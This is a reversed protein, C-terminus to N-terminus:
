NLAVSYPMENTVHLVICDSSAQFSYEEVEKEWAGIYFM